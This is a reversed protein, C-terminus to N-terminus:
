PCGQGFAVLFAVVDDFNWTGIPAALDSCIGSAGFDTLFAVVDDFNLVGAPLATDAPNCAGTPNCPAECIFGYLEVYMSAFPSKVGLECNFGGYNFTGSYETSQVPPCDFGSAYLDLADEAGPADDSPGALLVGVLGRQELPIASQDFRYAFSFDHRSDSDLDTYTPHGYISGGSIGTGAEDIGNSDGLEFVLSPAASAFDLSLTYVAIYGPPLGPLAGPLDTLTLDFICYRDSDLGNDADSFTVSMDFGVIGDGISDGDTDTDTLTTGYALVVSTVVADANIDGWDLVWAGEPPPNLEAPLAGPGTYDPLTDGDFDPNDIIGVSGGTACPDTNNNTWAASPADRPGAGIPYAVREGTAANYYINAVPWPKLTRQERAAGPPPQAAATSALGVATVVSMLHSHM